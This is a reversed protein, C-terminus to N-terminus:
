FPSFRYPSAIISVKAWSDRDDTTLMGSWVGDDQVRKMIAEFTAQIAGFPVDDGAEDQLFVKFVHGKRLLAIHDRTSEDDSAHNADQRM